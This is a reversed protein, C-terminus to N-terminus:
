DWFLLYPMVRAKYLRSVSLLSVTGDMDSVKLLYAGDQDKVLSDPFLSVAKEGTEVWLLTKRKRQVLKKLFTLKAQYDFGFVQDDRSPLYHSVQGEDVLERANGLEELETHYPSGEAMKKLISDQVSEKKQADRPFSLGSFRDVTVPPLPSPPNKDADVLKEGGIRPLTGVAQRLIPIWEGSKTADMLFCGPAPRSLIYASLSPIGDILRSLRSDASLAICHCLSIEGYSSFALRVETELDAGQGFSLSHLIDKERLGSDFARVLSERDIKWITLVDLRLLTAYRFILDDKKGRGHYSLSRDSDIVLTEREGNEIMRAFVADERVEALGFLSLRSLLLDGDCHFLSALLKFHSMDLSSLMGLLAFVDRIVQLPLDNTAALLCAIDSEERATLEQMKEHDVLGDEMVGIASLSSLLATALIAYKSPPVLPFCDGCSLVSNKGRGEALSVFGRVFDRGVLFGQLADGRKDGFLRSLSLLPTLSPALLPSVVLSGDVVFLALRERLSAIALRKRREQFFPEEMSLSPFLTAALLISLDEEDLLSVMRTIVVPNSFLFFLQECAKEKPVKLAEKGLYRRELISFRDADIHSVLLVFGDSM